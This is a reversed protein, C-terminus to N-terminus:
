AVNYYMTHGVRAPRIQRNRILRVISFRWSIGGALRRRRKAQDPAKWGPLGGTKQMKAIGVIRRERIPLANM